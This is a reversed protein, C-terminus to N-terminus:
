RLRLMRDIWSAWRSSITLHMPSTSPRRQLCQLTRYRTLGRDVSETSRCYGVSESHLIPLLCTSPRWSRRIRRSRVVILSEQLSYLWNETYDITHRGYRVLALLCISILLITMIIALIIWGVLSLATGTYPQPQPNDQIACNDPARFHLFVDMFLAFRLM